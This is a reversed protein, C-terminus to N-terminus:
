EITNRWTLRRLLSAQANLTSVHIIAKIGNDIISKLPHKQWSRRVVDPVSARYQKPPKTYTNRTSGLVGLKPSHKAVDPISVHIDSVKISAAIINLLM